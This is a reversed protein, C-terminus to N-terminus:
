MERPPLTREYVWDCLAGFGPPRPALAFAEDPDLLGGIQRAWVAAGIVVSVVVLIGVGFAAAAGASGAALWGAAALALPLLVPGIM